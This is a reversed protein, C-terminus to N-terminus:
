KKPEILNGFREPMKKLWGRITKELNGTTLGCSEVLEAHERTLKNAIANIIRSQSNPMESRFENLLEAVKNIVPEYRAAKGSGGTGARASFRKAPEPIFMEDSSWYVGRDVSHSAQELDNRELAETGEIVHAMAMIPAFFHADYGYSMIARM